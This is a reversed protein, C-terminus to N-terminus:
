DFSTIATISVAQKGKSVGLLTGSYDLMLVNQGYSTFDLNLGFKGGYDESAEGVKEKTTQREKTMAIMHATLWTEIVTLLAESLTINWTLADLFTNANDIYSQIDPDSLTTTIIIKVKAITTRAAM